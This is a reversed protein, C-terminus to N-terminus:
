QVEWRREQCLITVIRGTISQKTSRTNFKLEARLETAQIMSSTSVNETEPQWLWSSNANVAEVVEHVACDFEFQAQAVYMM